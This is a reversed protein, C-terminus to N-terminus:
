DPRPKTELLRRECLVVRFMVEVMSECINHGCLRQLLTKHLFSVSVPILIGCEVVKNTCLESFYAVCDLVQFDDSM